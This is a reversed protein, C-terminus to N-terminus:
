YQFNKNFLIMKRSLGLTRIIQMFFFFFFFQIYNYVNKDNDCGIIHLDDIKGQIDM